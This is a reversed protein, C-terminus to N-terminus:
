ATAFVFLNYSKAPVEIVTKSGGLKPAPAKAPVVKNPQDFTNTAKLDPGTIVQSDIVRTPSMSQWNVEFTRSNDLDRNLVLMCVNGNKSDRTAAVDLYNVNGMGEVPYTPSEVEVRLVDGSCNALAWSYPYFITQKLCMKENTLLAALANVLQALCAIKVRDAHRLLSNILGGVM